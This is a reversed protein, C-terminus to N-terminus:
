IELKEHEEEQM